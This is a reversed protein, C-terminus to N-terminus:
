VMRWASRGCGHRAMIGDIMRGLTEDEFILAAFDFGFGRERRNRKEKAPDWDFRM